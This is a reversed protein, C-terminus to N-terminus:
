YTHFDEHIKLIICTGSTMHMCVFLANDLGELVPSSVNGM